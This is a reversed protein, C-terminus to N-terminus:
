KIMSFHVKPIPDIVQFAFNPREAIKAKESEVNYGDHDGQKILFLYHRSYWEPQLPMSIEITTFYRFYDSEIM